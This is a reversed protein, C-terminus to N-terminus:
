DDFHGAPADHQGGHHGNIEFDPPSSCSPRDQRAYTLRQSCRVSSGNWGLRRWTPRLPTWRNGGRFYICIVPASRTKISGSAFLVMGAEVSAMILARLRVFDGTQPGYPRQRSISYATPVAAQIYQTSFWGRIIMFFRRNLWRHVNLSM